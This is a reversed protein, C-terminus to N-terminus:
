KPAREGRQFVFLADDKGAFSPLPIQVIKTWEPRQKLMYEDLTIKAFTTYGNMNQTGVVAVKHKTCRTLLRSADDCLIHPRRLARVTDGTYADLLSRTFRGEEAGVIPYVMLLVADPRGGHQRLWSAADVVIIDRIWSTRWVSDANDIALTTVESSILVRLIADDRPTCEGWVTSADADL